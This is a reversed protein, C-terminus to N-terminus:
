VLQLLPVILPVNLCSSPTAKLPGPLWLSKSDLQKEEFVARYEVQGIHPLARALDDFSRIDGPKVGARDMRNRDFPVHSYHFELVPELKDLQIERMKPTNLHPEIDMDWYKREQDDM